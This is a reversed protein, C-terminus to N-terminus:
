EVESSDITLTYALQHHHLVARGQWHDAGDYVIDVMVDTGRLVTRQKSEDRVSWGDPLAKQLADAPAYVLLLDNLIRQPPLKMAPLMDAKLNQGDYDLTAMRLGMASNIVELQQADLQLVSEMVAGGGPYSVQLQQQVTRPSGLAAPPIQLLPLDRTLLSACGSLLTLGLLTAALLLRRM